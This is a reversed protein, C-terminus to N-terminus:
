FAIVFYFIFTLLTNKLMKGIYTIGEIYKQLQKDINSGEIPIEIRIFNHKLVEIWIKLIEKMIIANDITALASLENIVDYLLLKEVESLNLSIDSYDREKIARLHKIDRENNNIYNDLINLSVFNTNQIKETAQIVGNRIAEFLIDKRIEDDRKRVFCYREFEKFLHYMQYAELYQKESLPIHDEHERWYQLPFSTYNLFVIKDKNDLSLLENDNMSSKTKGNKVFYFIPNDSKHMMEDFALLKLNSDFVLCIYHEGRWNYEIKTHIYFASLEKIKKIYIYQNCDPLYAFIKHQNNYPESIGRKFNDSLSIDIDNIMM